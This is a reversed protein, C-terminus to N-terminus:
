TARHRYNSSGRQNEKVCDNETKHEINMSKAMSIGALKSGM